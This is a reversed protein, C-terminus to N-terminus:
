EAHQISYRHQYGGFREITQVEFSVSQLIDSYEVFQASIPQILMETLVAPPQTSNTNVTVIITMASSGGIAVKEMSVIEALMDGTGGITQGM